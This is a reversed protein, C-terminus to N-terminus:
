ARGHLVREKHVILESSLRLMCSVLTDSYVGPDVVLADDRIYLMVMNGTVYRRLM